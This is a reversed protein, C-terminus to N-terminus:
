LKRNNLSEQYQFWKSYAQAKTSQAKVETISAESEQLTMKHRNLAQERKRQLQQLLRLDHTVRQQRKRQEEPERVEHSSVRDKVNSDGHMPSKGKSSTVSNAYNFAKGGWLSSATSRRMGQYSGTLRVVEGPRRYAGSGRYSTGTDQGSHQRATMSCLQERAELIVQMTEELAELLSTPVQSLVDPDQGELNTNPPLGVSECIMNQVEELVKMSEELVQSPDEDVLDHHPVGCARNPSLFSPGVQPADSSQCRAVQKPSTHSMSVVPSSSEIPDVVSSSAYTVDEQRVLCSSATPVQQCSGDAEVHRASINPSASSKIDASTPSQEHQGVHEKGNWSTEAAIVTPQSTVVRSRGRNALFKQILNVSASM